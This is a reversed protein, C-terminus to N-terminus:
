LYDLQLRFQWYSICWLNAPVQTPCSYCIKNWTCCCIKDFYRFQFCRTKMKADGKYFAHLAIVLFSINVASMTIVEHWTWSEFPMLSFSVLRVQCIWDLQRNSLEAQVHQSSQPRLSALNSTPANKHALNIGELQSNLTGGVNAKPSPVLHYAPLCHLTINNTVWGKDGMNVDPLLLAQHRKNYNEAQKLNASANQTKCRNWYKPLKPILKDPSISLTSRTKREM